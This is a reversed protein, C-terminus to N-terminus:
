KRQRLWDARLLEMYVHDQWAGNIFNSEHQRGYESFGVKKYCAIARENFAFVRLTVSHLNLQEFSYKLLLRLAEAGYGKNWEGHPGIFIGVEATQNVQDIENFGCNGLLADDSARVIAYQYSGARESIWKREAELTMSGRAASGLKDAIELDNLWVCYQEADEPRMPSLYIREGVLNKFYNM